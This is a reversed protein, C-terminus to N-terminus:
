LNQNKISKQIMSNILVRGPTTRIFQIILGGKSDFRRYYKSRIEQWYGLSNLRIEHPVSLEAATEILTNWKLWISAHINLKNIQYAKLVQESNNFCLAIPTKDQLIKRAQLKFHINNKLTLQKKETTLYYCGLVMDQSPLIIPEGTASSIINNRSFILKWAEARAEVTIPVHVAMQDGDFDANFAPCVLPHLLIARGDILKPKFAQIGLRHLTPARNLLVPHSQMIERLIEWTLTPNSRILTKAGIVTRAFKYHLFKQILFPLFLELAMEKPLGCEYLKLKPGVVIVSRGSYDVRKGLLYQRFRGEKGKLIESLSKLPQGRSNSEAKVGSKGNQILNDVAEQLLRYAYKMEFSQSTAPDKLFKKLRDNRYIVRQYLRNLDSAAFQDQLKLIPRLDPPLVPLISLIMSAPNVNKRFLKRILKLRRIIHDRKQLLKQIKILHSKSGKVALKKNKNGFGQLKLFSNTDLNRLKRIQKNLKPLLIQHQKAMRKLELPQFEMLLKQIIGAGTLATKIPLDMPNSTRNKYCPIQVDDFEFSASNYYIFYKWDKEIPWTYDYPLSYINNFIKDVETQNSNLNELVQTKLKKNKFSLKKKLKKQLLLSKSFLLKSNTLFNITKELGKSESQLKKNQFIEFSELQFKKSKLGKNAFLIQLHNFFDRKEVSNNEKKQTSRKATKTHLVGVFHDNQKLGNINEALSLSKNNWYLLTKQKQNLFNLFYWQFLKQQKQIKIYDFFYQYQFRTQLFQKTLYDVFNELLFTTSKLFENCFLTILLKKQNKPFFVWKLFLKEFEPNTQICWLLHMKFFSQIVNVPRDNLSKKFNQVDTAWKKDTKNPRLQIQRNLLYCFSSNKSDPKVKPLVMNLNTPKNEPFISIWFAKQTAPTSPVSPIQKKLVISFKQSITKLDPNISKKQIKTQLKKNTDNVSHFFNQLKMSYKSKSMPLQKNKTFIFKVIKHSKKLALQYAKKYFLQWVEQSILLFNKNRMLYATNTKITNMFFQSTNAMNTPYNTYTLSLSNKITEDHNLQALTSDLFNKSNTTHSASKSDSISFFSERWNKLRFPSILSRKQLELKKQHISNLNLPNQSTVKTQSNFNDNVIQTNILNSNKSLSLFNPYFGTESAINSKQHESHNSVNLQPNSTSSLTQSNKIEKEMLRQWALYLSSPSNNFGVNYFSRWVNELTMTEMCYIISDLPKRKIDLLISLYSPNTKLYWLHSIPSVLRIYGLQYRRIVSWTYEVDCVPCFYRKTQKHELIKKSEEESPKQRIGCACEFDKLPGFIRECFLGGKQPKFTKYHLTNANTVEGFIKGNPLIKEAWKRITKSSAIGITILKLEHVKSYSNLFNEDLIERKDGKDKRYIDNLNVNIKSIFKEEMKLLKKKSDGENPLHETKEIDSNFNKLSNNINKNTM